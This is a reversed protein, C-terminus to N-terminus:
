SLANYCTVDHRTLRAVTVPEVSENVAGNVKGRSVAEAM